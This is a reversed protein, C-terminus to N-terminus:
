TKYRKNSQTMVACRNYVSQKNVTQARQVVCASGMEMGPVVWGGGEVSVRERICCKINVKGSIADNQCHSKTM